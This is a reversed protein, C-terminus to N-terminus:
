VTMIEKNKDALMGDIKKIFKDHSKQLKEEASFHFNTYESLYDLMQVAKIKGGGDECSDVFQKIRSILEKHQSDILENGTILNDDFEITM